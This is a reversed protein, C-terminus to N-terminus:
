GPNVVAMYMNNKGRIHKVSMASLSVTLLKSIRAFGEQVGTQSRGEM